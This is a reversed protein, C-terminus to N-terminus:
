GVRPHARGDHLFRGGDVFTITPHDGGPGPEATVFVDGDCHVFRETTESDGRRIAEPSPLSTVFIGIDAAEVRHTVMPGQYTGILPAVDVHSPTQPPVPLTPRRAGTLETVLGDM